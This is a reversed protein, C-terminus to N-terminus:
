QSGNQASSQTPRRQPGDRAPFAHVLDVGKVLWSTGFAWVAAVEGLYLSTLWGLDLDVVLGLAAWAVAALILVGCVRHLVPHGGYRQDRVAFVFCLAALSLVFVAACAFHVTAVAHEGWRAQLPTPPGPYFPPRETPLLAVGIVAAGAVTSLWYDWTRRQAALYTLLLCGTVCLTGVFLDRAGSHYYASLSGRVTISGQLVLADVTWLVLPLLIGVVGVVLRILLYSRAYLVAPDTHDRLDDPRVFTATTLAAVPSKM